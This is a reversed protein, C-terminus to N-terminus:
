LLDGQVSTLTTPTTRGGRTAVREEVPRIASAGEAGVIHRWDHELYVVGFDRRDSLVSFPYARNQLDYPHLGKSDLIGASVSYSGPLLALKRIVLEVRGEGEFSPM